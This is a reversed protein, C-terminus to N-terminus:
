FSFLPDRTQWYSYLDIPPKGDSRGRRFSVRQESPMDGLVTSTRTCAISGKSWFVHVVLPWHRRPRIEFQDKVWYSRVWLAVVAVCLLLSLATLLNLLRRKM